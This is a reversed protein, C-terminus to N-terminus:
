GWVQSFITCSSIKSLLIRGGAQNGPWCSFCKGILHSVFATEWKQVCICSDGSSFLLSFIMRNNWLVCLSSSVNHKGDAVVEWVGVSHCLNHVDQSGVNDKLSPLSGFNTELHAHNLDWLGEPPASVEWMLLSNPPNNKGGRAKKKRKKLQHQFLEMPGPLVHLPLCFQICYESPHCLSKVIRRLSLEVSSTPAPLPSHPIICHERGGKKRWLTAQSASLEQSM